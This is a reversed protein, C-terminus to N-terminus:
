KKTATERLLQEAADKLTRAVQALSGLHGTLVIAAVQEDQSYEGWTQKNSAGHENLWWAELVESLASLGNATDTIKAITEHLKRFPIPVSSVDATSASPIRALMEYARFSLAGLSSFGGQTLGKLEAIKQSFEAAEKQRSERELFEAVLAGVALILGFAFWVGCETRSFSGVMRAM